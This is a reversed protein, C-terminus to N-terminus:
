VARVGIVALTDAWIEPHASPNLMPDVPLLWGASADPSAIVAQRYEAAAEAHRGARALIIARGIALHLPTGSPPLEGRLAAMAAAHGPAVALASAFAANAEDRRRQRLYVAGLSYWTNATCRPAYIQASTSSSSLEQMCASIAGDLQGEAALLLAHLLHLGVVRSTGTHQLDQAACGAQLEERASPFARRAIFVSARLWHALARGPSLVLVRAAARLREEGWTVYGARLAHRWDDPELRTAKYAAAAADTSNGSLGLLFALTSWAEGSAPALGCGTRAHGLGAELAARDPVLDITTAEYALACAMALAVHADAYDPHELVLAALATRAQAIRERDLSELETRGHVFARYPALQADLSTGPLHRLARRVDAAFRYGKMPLTEIYETRRTSPDLTKRLGSVAKDLSNASIAAREWAAEILAEKTVPAPAAAVLRALIVAQAHPLPIRADGRFLTRSDLDLEFPGFCHVVLGHPM